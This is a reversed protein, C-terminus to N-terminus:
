KTVCDVPPQVEEAPETATVMLVEGTGVPILALGLGIQEPWVKVKVAVAAVPPVNVQVKGSPPPAEPLGTILFLTVAAIVPEYLTFCVM